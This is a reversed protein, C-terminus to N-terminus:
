TTSQYGERSPTVTIVSDLAGMAPAISVTSIEVRLGNDLCFCVLSEALYRAHKAETSHNLERWRVAQAELSPLEASM